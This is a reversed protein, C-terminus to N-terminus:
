GSLDIASWPWQHRFAQFACLVGAPAVWPLAGTLSIPYMLNVGALHSSKGSTYFLFEFWKTQLASFSTM